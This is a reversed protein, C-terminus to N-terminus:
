HAHAATTTGTNVGELVAAGVWDLEQDANAPQVASCEVGAAYLQRRLNQGLLFNEKPIADVFRKARALADGYGTAGYPKAQDILAILEAAKQIQEESAILYGFTSHVKQVEGEFGAFNVLVNCVRELAEPNGGLAHGSGYWSM